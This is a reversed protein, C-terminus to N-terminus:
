VAALPYICLRSYFGMMDIQTSSVQEHNGEENKGKIHYSLLKAQDIPVVTLHEGQKVNLEVSDPLKDERSEPSKLIGGRSVEEMAMTHRNDFISDGVTDEISRVQRSDPIQVGLSGDSSPELIMELGGIKVHGRRAIYKTLHPYISYGVSDIDYKFGLDVLRHFKMAAYAQSTEEGSRTTNDDRRREVRRLYKAVSNITINGNADFAGPFLRKTQPDILSKALKFSQRYISNGYSTHLFLGGYDKWSKEMDKLSLTGIPIGDNYPPSYPVQPGVLAYARQSRQAIDRTTGVLFPTLYGRWLSIYSM